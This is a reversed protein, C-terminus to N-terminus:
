LLVFSRDVRENPQVYFIGHHQCSICHALWEKLLFVQGLQCWVICFYEDMIMNSSQWSLLDSATCFSQYFQTVMRRMFCCRCMGADINWNIHTMWLWCMASFRLFNNLITPTLRFIRWVQKSYIFVIYVLGLRVSLMGRGFELSVWLLGLASMSLLDQIWFCVSFYCPTAVHSNPIFRYMSLALM